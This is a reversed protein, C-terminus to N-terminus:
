ARKIKGSKLCKACVYEKVINGNEKVVKIKHLNASWTKPTKRHSHSVMNGGMKSKECVSCVKSM